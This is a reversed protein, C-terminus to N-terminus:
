LRAAPNIIGGDCDRDPLIKGGHKSFATLNGFFVTFSLAREHLNRLQEKAQERFQQLLRQESHVKPMPVKSVAPWSSKEM